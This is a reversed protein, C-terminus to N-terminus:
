CSAHLSLPLLAVDADYSNTLTEGCCLQQRLSWM